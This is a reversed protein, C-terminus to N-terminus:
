VEGDDEGWPTAKSRVKLWPLHAFQEPPHATALCINTFGKEKLEAAINEGKVGEGLESDIYIPMDKPFNGLDSMFKDPETYGILKAGAEEAAAEWTMHIIQSDDLLVASSPPQDGIAIPVISALGKPILRVKLSACSDTIRKEEARSTILITRSCLGLEESLSLGTETHGALEYDFLCVAQAAKEPNDKVWVRLGSPESFDLVEINHDNLRASEFRGRWLEHIGPDDDLVLVPRGPILKVQGAFYDPTEAKPLEITVTTGKGLESTITLSGGWKEATTRAHYVGLGSGGAKGHTEGRQGLKALVDPPIGKGTDTVTLFISGAKQSLGISVEGKEGLAEVANNVLNSIIRRFEVPHVKAFLGYSERSLGLTIQIGPKAEFQLRKETIVPEILSSMLYTELPQVDTSPRGTLSAPVPQRNKELLGNAVDSIRNLSYRVIVRQREPLQPINKLAAELAFVPSRIDHAVQAALQSMAVDKQYRIKEAKKGGWYILALSLMQFGLILVFSFELIKPLRLTLGVHINKNGAPAIDLRRRFFSTACNGRSRSFFSNGSTEASICVWNVSTSFSNLRSVLSMIDGTEFERLNQARFSEATSASMTNLYQAFIFPVALVSLVLCGALLIDYINLGPLLRLATFTTLRFGRAM